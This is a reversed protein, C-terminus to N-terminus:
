AGCRNAGELDVNRVLGQLVQTSTDHRRPPRLPLRHRVVRLAHREREHLLQRAVPLRVIVPTVALRLEVGQRVEDGLDIPQVNM